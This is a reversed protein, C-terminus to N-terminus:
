YGIVVLAYRNIGESSVVENLAIRILHFCGRTPTANLAANLSLGTFVMLLVM